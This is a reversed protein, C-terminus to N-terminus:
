RVSAKWKKHWCRSMYLWKLDTGTRLSIFVECWGKLKPNNKYDLVKLTKIMINLLVLNSEFAMDVSGIMLPVFLNGYGGILAPMIVFFIM